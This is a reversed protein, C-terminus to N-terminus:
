LCFCQTAKVWQKGIILTWHEDFLLFYLSENARRPFVVSVSRDLQSEADARAFLTITTRSFCSSYLVPSISSKLLSSDALVHNSWLFKLLETKRLGTGLLLSLRLDLEFGQPKKVMGAFNPFIKLSKEASVSQWIKTQLAPGSHGNFCLPGTVKIIISL